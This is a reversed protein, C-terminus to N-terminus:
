VTIDEPNGRGYLRSVQYIRLHVPNGPTLGDATQQAATYSASTAGAVQITRVIALSGNLIDIEYDDEDCCCLRGEITSLLPMTSRTRAVWTITLNDSGDRTGAVHAPAFPRATAGQLRFQTAIADSLSGGAPVAKLYRDVEVEAADMEVEVLTSLDLLAFLDGVAHDDTWYRTDGLGRLLTSLRYVNTDILTATQFALIEAGLVALNAGALVEEESHSVLPSRYSFVDVTHERDWYGVPGDALETLAQGLVAEVPIPALPEYTVGDRSQYVLAGSWAPKPDAPSVALYFRPCCTDCDRLPALDIPLIALLPPVHVPM